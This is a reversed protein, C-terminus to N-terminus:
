VPIRYSYSTYYIFVRLSCAYMARSDLYFSSFLSCSDYFISKTGVSTLVPPTALVFASLVREFIGNLTLFLRALDNTSKVSTRKRVKLPKLELKRTIKRSPLSIRVLRPSNEKKWVREWTGTSSPVSPTCSIGM